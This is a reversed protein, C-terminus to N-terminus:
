DRGTVSNMPNGSVRDLQIARIPLHLPQESEIGEGAFKLNEDGVNGEAHVLATRTLILGEETDNIRSANATAQLVPPRSSAIKLAGCLRHEKNLYLTV